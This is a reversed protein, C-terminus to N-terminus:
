AQLYGGWGVAVVAVSLGYEIILNWGIIWAVLQGLTAYSNHLRQGVGARGGGDRRLSLASLPVHHRCCSRSSSGGARLRRGGRRPHRLDGDRHRRRHRAGSISGGAARNLQEGSEVEKAVQEASRTAFLGRRTAALAMAGGKGPAPATLVPGLPFKRILGARAPHRRARPPARAPDADDARNGAAAIRCERPREGRHRILDAEVEDAFGMVGEVVLGGRTRADAEVGAGRLRDRAADAAERAHEAYERRPLPVLAESDVGDVSLATVRAGTEKALQVAADAAWSQLAGPKVAVVIHEM